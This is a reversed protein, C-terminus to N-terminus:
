WGGAEGVQGVGRGRGGAGGVQGEKQQTYYEQGECLQSGAGRGGVQGERQQTARMAPGWRGWGRGYISVDSGVLGRGGM